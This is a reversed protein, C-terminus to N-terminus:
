LDRISENFIQYKDAFYCLFLLSVVSNCLLWLRPHASLSYKYHCTEPFFDWWQRHSEIMMEMKFKKCRHWRHWSHWSPMRPLTPMRPVRLKIDCIIICYYDIYQIANRANWGNNYDYEKGCPLTPMPPMRSMRSMFEGKWMGTGTMGHTQAMGFIWINARCDKWTHKSAQLFPEDM